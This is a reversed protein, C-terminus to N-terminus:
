TEDRQSSHPGSSAGATSTSQTRQANQGNANQGNAQQGNNQGAPADIPASNAPAPQNSLAGPVGGPYAGGVQDNTNLQRSRVAMQSPDSNPRYQEETQEKNSFDIQATVQAHVNGTGVIPALISEIRRQIRGEVDSAYK